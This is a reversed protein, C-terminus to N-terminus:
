RLNPVDGAIMQCKSFGVRCMSEFILTVVGSDSFSAFSAVKDIRRTIEERSSIFVSGCALWKM